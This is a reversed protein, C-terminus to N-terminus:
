LIDQRTPMLFITFAMMIEFFFFVRNMKKFFQPAQSWGHFSVKDADHMFSDDEAGTYELSQEKDLSSLHSGSEESSIREGVSVCIRTWWCRQQGLFDRGRRELNWRVFGNAADSEARSRKRPSGSGALERKM